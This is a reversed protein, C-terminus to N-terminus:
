ATSKFLDNVATYAAIIRNAESESLAKGGSSVVAWGRDCVQAAVLRPMKEQNISRNAPM